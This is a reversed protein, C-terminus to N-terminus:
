NRPLKLHRDLVVSRHCWGAGAAPASTLHRGQGAMTTVNGLVVATAAVVVVSAAVVTEVVVVVVTNVVEAM